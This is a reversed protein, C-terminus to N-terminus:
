NLFFERSVTGKFEKKAKLAKLEAAEANSKIAHVENGKLLRHVNCVERGGEEKVSFSMAYKMQPSIDCFLQWFCCLCTITKGDNGFERSFNVLSSLFLNRPM